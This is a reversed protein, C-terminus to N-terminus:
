AAELLVSLLQVDGGVSDGADAAIRKIRFRFAEGSEPLQAGSTAWLANLTLYFLKGSTADVTVTSFFTHGFSDGDIDLGGATLREFQVGFVTEDIIGVAVLALTVDINGHTDTTGPWYVSPWHGEWIAYEETTDDFALIPHNNRTTLQAPNSAPLTADNPKFFLFPVDLTDSAAPPSPNPQQSFIEWGGSVAIVCLNDYEDDLVEAGSPVHLFDGSGGTVQVTVTNASSDGKMVNIMRGLHGSAAPLTVTYSSLTADIACHTWSSTLATNANSTIRVWRHAIDTETNGADDAIDFEYSFNIVSRQTVPTGDEEITDYGGGGGVGGVSIIDFVNGTQGNTGGNIEISGDSSTLTIATVSPNDLLERVVSLLADWDYQEAAGVLSTANRGPPFARPPLKLRGRLKSSLEAM